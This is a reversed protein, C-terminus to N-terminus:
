LTVVVSLGYATFRFYPAEKLTEICRLVELQSVMSLVDALPKGLAGALLSLRLGGHRPALQDYLCVLLEALGPTLPSSSPSIGPAPMVPHTMISLNAM